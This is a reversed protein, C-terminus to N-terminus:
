RLRTPVALTGVTLLARRQVPFGERHGSRLMQSGLAIWASYSGVPQGGLGRWVEDPDALKFEWGDGTWSIFPQCSKDSLLELLFQWLQIPGSGPSLACHMNQRPLPKTMGIFCVPLPIHSGVRPALPFTGNRTSTGARFVLPSLGSVLCLGEQLSGVGLFCTM